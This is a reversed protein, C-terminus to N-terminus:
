LNQGNANELDNWVYRAGSREYKYQGGISDRHVPPVSDAEPASIGLRIQGTRLPNEARDPGHFSKVCKAQLCDFISDKPTSFIAM